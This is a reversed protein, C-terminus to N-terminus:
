TANTIELYKTFVQAANQAAQHLNNVFDQNSNQGSDDSIGRFVSFPIKHLHSVHGIAASEMDKALASFEKSTQLVQQSNTVFQDASLITGHHLTYNATIASKLKNFDALSFSADVGINGVNPVEGKKYGLVSLDFDSQIVSTAICVDGTEVQPSIGGAVGINYIHDPNFQNVVFQTSLAANVKGIGSVLLVIDRNLLKGRWFTSGLFSDEAGDAILNLIPDLEQQLAAILAIM